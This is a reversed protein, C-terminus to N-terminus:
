VDSAIRINNWARVRVFCLLHVTMASLNRTVFDARVLGHSSLLEDVSVRQM